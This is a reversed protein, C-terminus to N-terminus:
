VAITEECRQLAGIYAKRTYYLQAAKLNKKADAILLEEPLANADLDPAVPKAKDQAQGAGLSFCLLCGALLIRKM